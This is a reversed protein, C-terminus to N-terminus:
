IPTDAFQGRGVCPQLMLQCQKRTSKVTEDLVGCIASVVGSGVAMWVVVATNMGCGDSVMWRGVAGGVSNALRKRLQPRFAQRQRNQAGSAPRQAM